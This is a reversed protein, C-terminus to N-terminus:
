PSLRSATEQSDGYGKPTPRRTYSFPDMKRSFLYSSITLLVAAETGVAVWAMGVFGHNPVILLVLGLNLVAAVFVIRTLVSELGLPLMWQIGLAHTAASLPVLIALVQLVAVAPLFESGLVIHIALPATLFTFVGALLGVGVLLLTGTRALVAADQPSREALHSVRPHLSNVVPNLLRLLARTLREPGAFLAVAAPSAILGMIFPNIESYLSVGARFVFVRWGISLVYRADAPRPWRPTIYKYSWVIQLIAAIAYGWGLLLLALTVQSADKVFLLVFATSTLRGFVDFWAAVPVRELARYLWLPNFYQSLSWFVAAWLVEPREDFAPVLQQAIAAVGIVLAALFLKAGHVGAVIRAVREPDSRHRAVERAASLYFSFEVIIGLYIAFSQAFVMLGWVDPGLIRALYALVVFPTIYNALQIVYSGVIDHRLRAGVLEPKFIRM